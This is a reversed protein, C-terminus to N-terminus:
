KGEVAQFKVETYFTQAKILALNAAHKECNEDLLLCIRKKSEAKAPRGLRHAVVKGFYEHTFCAMMRSKRHEDAPQNQGVVAIHSNESRVEKLVKNQGESLQCSLRTTDCPFGLEKCQRLMIWLMRPLDTGLRYLYDQMKAATYNALYIKVMANGVVSLEKVGSETWNTTM